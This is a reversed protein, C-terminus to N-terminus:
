KTNKVPIHNVPGIHIHPVNGWHDKQTDDRAPAKYENAWDILTQADNQTLNQKNEAEKALDILASQDPDYKKDNPKSGDDPTSRMPGSLADGTEDINGKGADNTPPVVSPDVPLGPTPIPPPIGSIGVPPPPPAGPLGIPPGDM